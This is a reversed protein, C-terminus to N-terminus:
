VTAIILLWCHEKIKCLFLTSKEKFFVSYKKQFKLFLFQLVLIMNVQLDHLSFM